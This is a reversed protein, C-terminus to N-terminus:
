SCAQMCTYMYMSTAFHTHRLPGRKTGNQTTDNYLTRSMYLARTTYDHTCTISSRETRVPIRKDKKLKSMASAPAGFSVLIKVM